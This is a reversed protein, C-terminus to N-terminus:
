HSGFRRKTEEVAWKFSEVARATDVLVAHLTSRTM